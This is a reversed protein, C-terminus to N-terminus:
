NHTGAIDVYIEGNEVKTPYTTQKAGEMTLCSGTTVDFEWAHWPCTINVGELYGDGLPGGRHFCADQLAYFKGVVNFLAVKLGAAEVTRCSGEAVESVKAVAHWM